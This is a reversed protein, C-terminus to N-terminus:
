WRDFHTGDPLVAAGHDAPGLAEITAVVQRAGEDVDSAAEAHGSMDTRLYGPYLAVVVVDTVENAIMRTLANTGFRSVVYAHGTSQKIVGLRGTPMTINVLRAGDRARLLPLTRQSVLLPGLVNVAFAETMTAAAVDTFSQSDFNVGANNVVVDLGGTVAAVSDVAAAVSAEDSVDMSVSVLREGHRGALAALGQSAEPRRAAAFVRADRDLFAGCLALGIGRSSGTVLVDVV